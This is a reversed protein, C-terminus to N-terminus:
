HLGNGVQLMQTARVPLPRPRLPRGRRRRSQVRRFDVRAEAATDSDGPQETSEEATKVAPPRLSEKFGGRTALDDLVLAPEWSCPSTAATPRPRRWGSPPSANLDPPRHLREQGRHVLEAEVEPPARHDPDLAPVGQTAWRTAAGARAPRRRLLLHRQTLGSGDRQPRSTPLVDTTPLKKQTSASTPTTPALAAIYVLGQGLDTGAVTIVTGGYTVSSDGPQEGARPSSPRRGDGKLTDLSNQAAVM